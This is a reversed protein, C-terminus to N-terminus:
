AFVDDMEAEDAGALFDDLHTMHKTHEQFLRDRENESISEELTKYLTPILLCLRRIQNVTLRCCFYSINGYKNEYRDMFYAAKIRDKSKNALNFNLRGDGSHALANRLHRIFSFVGIEKSDEAYTSRILKETENGRELENIIERIGKYSPDDLYESEIVQNKYKEYPLIIMGFLSNIVQTVEYVKKNPNDSHENYIADIVTMNQRTRETFDKVFDQFVYGSM